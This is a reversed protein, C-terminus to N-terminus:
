PALPRVTPEVRVDGADGHDDVAAIVKTPMASNPM